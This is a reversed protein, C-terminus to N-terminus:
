PSVLEAFLIKADPLVCDRERERQRERDTERETAREKDTETETKRGGGRETKGFVLNQRAQWKTTNLSASM